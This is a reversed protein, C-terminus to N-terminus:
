IPRVPLSLVPDFSANCAPCDIKHLEWGTIWRVFQAYLSQRGVDSLTMLRVTLKIFDASITSIHNFDVFSDPLDSGYSPLFLKSFVRNRKVDGQLSSNLVQLPVVPCVHWRKVHKKDITCDHTMLLGRTRKCHALIAQGNKDDFTAYPEGFARFLSEAEARLGLLPHDLFVHPVVDIIDGQSIAASVAQYLEQSL